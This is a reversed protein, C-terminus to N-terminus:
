FKRKIKKIQEGEDNKFKKSDLKNPGEAAV